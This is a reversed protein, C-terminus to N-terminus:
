LLVAAELASEFVVDRGSLSIEDTLLSDIGLCRAKVIHSGTKCDMTTRAELICDDVRTVAFSNGAGSCKMALSRFAFGTSGASILRIRERPLSHGSKDLQAKLWGALLRGTSAGSEVSVERISALHDRCVVSDFFQAFLQRCPTLRGWNLDSVALGMRHSQEVFRALAQLDSESYDVSDVIVRGAQGALLEFDKRGFPPKPWWLIVPLDPVLLASCLSPLNDAMIGHATLSIRDCCVCRRCTESDQCVIAVEAVLGPPDIDPESAILILRCPHRGIINGIVEMAAEIERDSGGVAVLNAMIARMNVSTSSDKKGVRPMAIWLQELEHEILAPAVQRPGAVIRNSM